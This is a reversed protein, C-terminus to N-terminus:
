VSQIEMELSSNSINSLYLLMVANKCNKLINKFRYDFFRHARGKLM